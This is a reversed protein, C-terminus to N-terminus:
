HSSASVASSLKDFLGAIDNRITALKTFHDSLVAVREELDRKTDAFLKVRAALDGDEGGELRRIKIVLQDRIDQLDAIVKLVGSDQAELPALRSQLEGLRTRLQGLIASRHEIDAFQQQTNEVFQSLEHVRGDGDAATEEDKGSAVINLARSLAVAFSSADSRLTALKSFEAELQAIGEALRNKHEALAQVRATLAGEPARELSDIEAALKEYAESVQRARSTVGADPAALPALRTQLEAASEKLGAITKSAQEIQDCRANSQRVFESLNKLRIDLAVGDDGHSIEAMTREIDNHNRDVDSFLLEVARRADLTPVLREMLKQQQDRIQGIRSELDVVENRSQQVQVFREAETIRRQLGAIADEPDTRVLHEVDSEADTQTKTLDAVRNRVGNLRSELSDAAKGQRVLKDWLWVAFPLMILPVLVIVAWALKHPLPQSGFAAILAAMEPAQAFVIYGVALVFLAVCVVVFRGM